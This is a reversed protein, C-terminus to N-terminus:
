PIYSGSPLPQNTHGDRAPRITPPIKPKGGNDSTTTLHQWSPVTKEKQWLLFSTLRTSSSVPQSSPTNQNNQRALPITSSVPMWRDPQYQRSCKMLTGTNLMPAHYASNKWWTRSAPPM